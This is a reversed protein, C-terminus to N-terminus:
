VVEIEQEDIDITIIEVEKTENNIECSGFFTFPLRLIIENDNEDMSTHIATGQGYFDASTDNNDFLSDFDINSLEVDSDIEVSSIPRSFDDLYYDNFKDHFIEDAWPYYFSKERLIQDQKAMKKLYINSSIKIDLLNSLTRNAELIFNFKGTNNYTTEIYSIQPSRIKQSDIDFWDEKVDNTLFVISTSNEKMYKMMEHFIIFDGGNNEIKKDDARGPFIIRTEKKLTLYKNKIFELEKNSLNNIVNIESYVNLLPDNYKINKNRELDQNIEALLKKHAASLSNEIDQFDEYIDAYDNLLTKNSSIFGSLKNINKQLDNPVEKLVSLYDNNIVNVRSKLFENKVQETIYINQINEKIFDIFNQKVKNSVKYFYLLVNADLFIPISELKSAKKFDNSYLDLGQKLHSISNECKSLFWFDDNVEVNDM